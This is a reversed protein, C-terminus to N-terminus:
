FTLPLWSAKAVSIKRSTVSRDSEKTMSIPDTVLVVACFVEVNYARRTVSGVPAVGFSKSAVEALIKRGPPM